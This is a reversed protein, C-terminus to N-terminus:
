PPLPLANGPLRQVAGPLAKGHRYVGRQRIADPHFHRQLQAGDRHFARQRRIHFREKRSFQTFFYGFKIYASTEFWAFHIIFLSRITYLGQQSKFLPVYVM